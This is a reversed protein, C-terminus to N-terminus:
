LLLAGMVSPRTALRSQTKLISWSTVGCVCQGCPPCRRTNHCSAHSGSVIVHWVFFEICMRSRLWKDGSTM